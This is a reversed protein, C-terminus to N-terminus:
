LMTAAFYILCFLVAAIGAYAIAAVAYLIAAADIPVPLLFTILYAETPLTPWFLFLACAAM